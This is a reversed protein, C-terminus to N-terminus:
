AETRELTSKYLRILHKKQMYMKAWISRNWQININREFVKEEEAMEYIGTQALM